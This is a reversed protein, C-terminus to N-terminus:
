QNQSQLKDIKQKIKNKILLLLFENTIISLIIIPLVIYLDSLSELLHPIGKGRSPYIKMGIVVIGILAILAGIIRLKITILESSKFLNSIKEDKCM